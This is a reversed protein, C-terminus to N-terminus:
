DELKEIDEEDDYPSSGDNPMRLINTVFWAVGLGLLNAAIGAGFALIPLIPSIRWFMMGLGVFFMIVLISAISFQLRRPPHEIVTM